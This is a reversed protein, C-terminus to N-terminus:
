ANGPKSWIRTNLNLDDAIGVAMQLDEFYQKIPAFDLLTRFIRPEFLDRAYSVAIFIKSGAFSMYIREKTKKQFDTIRRMLSTSLIYRAEIQDNGYVAFLKEFEPDELKILKGRTRNMSQLVTGIHGLLKEATDPLVTTVGHFAKNFDAVFFLGKFITHYTNRGKSDRTVYEAHVESFEVKTKDLVGSVHDDGKYRDIRHRFIRSSLFVPESICRHQSYDLNEDICKVIKEIIGKKFNSVYEKTFIFSFWAWIVAGIILPFIHQAIVSILAFVPMVVSGAVIIKRLAKKREAELVELRPLLVEDYYQKVEELTKM